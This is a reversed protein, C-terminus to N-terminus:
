GSWILICFVYPQLTKGQALLDNGPCHHQPTLRCRPIFHRLADDLQDGSHSVLDVAIGTHPVQELNHEDRIVIDGKCLDEDWTGGGGEM